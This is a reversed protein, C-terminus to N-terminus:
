MVGGVGFLDVVGWSFGDWGSRGADGWPVGVLEVAFEDWGFGSRGADGWSVGVLEVAFEDWGFGSDWIVGAGDGGVGFLEAM